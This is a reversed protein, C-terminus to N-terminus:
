KVISTSFLCLICCIVLLTCPFFQCPTNQVWFMSTLAGLQCGSPYWRIGRWIYLKAKDDHSINQNLGLNGLRHFPNNQTCKVWHHNLPKWPCPRYNFNLSRRLIQFCPLPARYRPFLPYSYGKSNRCWVYERQKLIITRTKLKPSILAREDNDSHHLYPGWLLVCWSSWLM